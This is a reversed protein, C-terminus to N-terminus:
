GLGLGLWTRWTLVKWAVIQLWACGLALEISQRVTMQVAQSPRGVIWLWLVGSHLQILESLLVVACFCLLSCLVM